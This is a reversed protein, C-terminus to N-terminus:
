MRESRKGMLKILNLLKSLLRETEEIHFLKVIILYIALYALSLIAAEAIEPLMLIYRLALCPMAIICSIAILAIKNWMFLKRINIGYLRTIVSGLYFLAVLEGLINAIGPTVFGVISFFSIIFGLNAALTLISGLIFYRNKNISRLPTGMEFSQILMLTGYIRFLPVAALYQATFLLEIVTAAFSIFLVYVPFVLFCFIVNAKKWLLLRSTDNTAQTMEPFLVDMVSSRIINIIPMQHSGVSYLALREAGMKISITLNALQTNVTNLTYALGLPAVFSLQEKMLAKDLPLRLHGRFLFFVVFIRFAEVFILSYIASFVDRTAYSTVIIAATRIFIRSASYYLVYDTRKKALWFPEFIDFNVALLTYAILPLIFDFSTKAVIFDKFAYILASGVISAIFAFLITNTVSQSEKNRYKSVFYLLNSPISFLILTSSLLAYLMFERYQGFSRMDFIRVLFIPSLILVGYNMVRCAILIVARKTLSSM